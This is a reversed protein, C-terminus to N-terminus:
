KNRDGDVKVKPQVVEFMVDDKKGKEILGAFEEKSLETGIPPSKLGELKSVTYPKVNLYSIELTVKKVTDSM